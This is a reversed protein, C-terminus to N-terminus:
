LLGVFDYEDDEMLIDDENGISKYKQPSSEEIISTFKRMLPLIKPACRNLSCFSFPFFLEVPRKQLTDNYRIMHTCYVIQLYRSVNAFCSAVAQSIYLLPELKSHVIYGLEWQHVEEATGYKTTLESHRYCIVFFLAQVVAYFTGHQMGGMAGKTVKCRDVYSYCWESISGLWKCAMSISVFNARALFACLYSAANHAKKWGNPTRAPACIVEWLYTLMKNTDEESLSCLYLWIYSVSHLDHAYLVHEEFGLLLAEFMNPPDLHQTYLWQFNRDEKLNGLIDDESKHQSIYTFITAMCLDLKTELSNEDIPNLDSSQAKMEGDDDMMFVDQAQPLGENEMEWPKNSSISTDLAVLKDVIVSWIEASLTPHDQGLLIMNRLYGLIRVSNQKFHPFNNKCCKILAPIYLPCCNIIQDLCSHALSYIEDQDEMSLVPSMRKTGNEEMCIVMEPTFHNTFCKLVGDVHCVHGVALSVLFDVFRGRISRPVTWWKLRCFQAVLETCNADMLHDLELFEELYGVKSDDSWSEFLDLAKHLRQYREVSDPRVQIYSEIIERGTKVDESKTQIRKQTM